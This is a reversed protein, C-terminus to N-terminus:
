LVPFLIVMLLTNEDQRIRTVKVDPVGQKTANQYIIMREGDIELRAQFITM